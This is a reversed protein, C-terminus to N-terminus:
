LEKVKFMRLRLPIRQSFHLAGVLLAVIWLKGKPGLLKAFGSM